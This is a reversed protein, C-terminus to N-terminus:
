RTNSPDSLYSDVALAARRPNDIEPKGTLKGVRLLEADIDKLNQKMYGYVGLAEDPSLRKKSRVVSWAQSIGDEYISFDQYTKKLGENSLGFGLVSSVRRLAVVYKPPVGVTEVKVSDGYWHPTVKINDKIVRDIIDDREQLTARHGLAALEHQVIQKVQGVQAQKDSDDKIEKKSFQKPLKSDIAEDTNIFDDFQPGTPPKTQLDIFHKFDSPSLSNVYKTLPIEAFKEPSNRALETLGAYLGLDTKPEVGKNRNDVYEIMAKQEDPAIEGPFPIDKYSLPAGGRVKAFIQNWGNQANQKLALDGQKKVMEQFQRIESKLRDSYQNREEASLQTFEKPDNLKGLLVAMSGYDDRQLAEYVPRIEKLKDIQAGLKDKYDQDMARSKSVVERSRAFDGANAFNLATQTDTAAIHEISDKVAQMSINSRRQAIHEQAKKQFDQQWGGLTISQSSSEMAKRAQADFIAGAVAFMPIDERDMETMQGTSLDLGQKTVQSRVEPPLSDLSGLKERVYQTSVTKNAAIEQEISNLNVALDAAAKQQQSRVMEEGIKQFGTEFTEIAQRQAEDVIRYANSKPQVSLNDIQPIIM